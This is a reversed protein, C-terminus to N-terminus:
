RAGRMIRVDICFGEDALVAYWDYLWCTAPKYLWLNENHSLSQQLGQRDMQMM